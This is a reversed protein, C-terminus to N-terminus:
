FNSLNDNLINVLPDGLPALAVKGGSEDSNCDKIYNSLSYASLEGDLSLIEATNNYFTSFGFDETPDIMRFSIILNAFLVPVLIECISMCRNRKWSIWNKKLLAKLHSSAKKNSNSM